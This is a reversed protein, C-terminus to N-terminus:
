EYLQKQTPEMTSDGLAHAAPKFTWEHIDARQKKIRSVKFKCLKQAQTRVKFQTSLLHSHEQGFRFTSSRYLGNNHGGLKGAVPVALVMLGATLRTKL